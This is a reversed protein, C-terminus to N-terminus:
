HIYDLEDSKGGGKPAPGQSPEPEPPQGRMERLTDILERKFAKDADKMERFERQLAKMQGLLLAYEKDVFEDNAEGGSSDSQGVRGIKEQPVWEVDKRKHEVEGTELPHRADQANPHPIPIPESWSVIGWLSAVKSALLRATEPLSDLIVTEAGDRMRRKFLSMRFKYGGRDGVMFTVRGWDLYRYARRVGRMGDHKAEQDLKSPLPGDFPVDWHAGALKSDPEYERDTDFSDLRPQPPNADSELGVAGGQVTSEIEKFPPSSLSAFAAGEEIGLEPRLRIRLGDRLAHPFRLMSAADARRLMLYVNQVSCEGIKALRDVDWEHPAARCVRGFRLDSKRM